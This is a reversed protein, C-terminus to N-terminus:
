VAEVDIRSHGSGFMCRCSVVQCHLGVQRFTSSVHADTRDVVLRAKRGLRIVEMGDCDAWLNTTTALSVDADSRSTISMPCQVFSICSTYMLKVTSQLFELCEITQQREKERERSTM